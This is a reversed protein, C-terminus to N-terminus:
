EEIIYVSTDDKTMSPPDNDPLCVAYKAVGPEKERSYEIIDHILNQM